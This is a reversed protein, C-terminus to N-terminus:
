GISPKVFSNIIDDLDFVKLNRIFDHIFNVVDRLLPELLESFGVGVRTTRGSDKASDALLVQNRALVASYLLSLFSFRNPVVEGLTTSSSLHLFSIVAFM